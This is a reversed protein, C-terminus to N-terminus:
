IGDGIFQQTLTILNQGNDYEISFSDSFSGTSQATFDVTVVCSDGAAIVLGNECTSTFSNSFFPNTSFIFNTITASTAGSSNTVTFVEENSTLLSVSRFDFPNAGDITLEGVFGVGTGTLNQTLTVLNEGDDYEISFSDSVLGISQPGFDVSLVCSDGALIVLGIECTTIAFSQFFPPTNFIINTITASTTASSNTVVFIEKNSTFLPESGFDFPNAADITLLLVGCTNSAGIAPNDDDCDLDNTVFGNPADCLESTANDPDGFGDEDNDAFFIWPGLDGHAQHAAVADPSVKLSKIKGTANEHCVLAKQPAAFANSVFTASSIILTAVLTSLLYVTKRANM